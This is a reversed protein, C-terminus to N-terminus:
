KKVGTITTGQDREIRSICAAAHHEQEDLSIGARLESSVAADIRWVGLWHKARVLCRHANRGVLVPYRARHATHLLPQYPVGRRVHCWQADKAM